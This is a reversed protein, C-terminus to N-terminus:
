SAPGADYAYSTDNSFHKAHAPPLSAYPTM